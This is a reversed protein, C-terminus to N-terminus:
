NILKIPVSISTKPLQGFDVCEYIGFFHLIWGDIYDTGSGPFYPVMIKNWWEVDPEGKYTDIFKSIIVGVNKVYTKLVGDVDYKELFM